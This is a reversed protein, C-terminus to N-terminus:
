IQLTADPVIFEHRSCALCLVGGPIGRPRDNAVLMGISLRTVHDHHVSNLLTQPISDNSHVDEVLHESIVALEKDSGGIM